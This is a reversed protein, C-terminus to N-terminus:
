RQLLNGEVYVVGKPSLVIADTERDFELLRQTHLPGIVKSKFVALNSYEIWECVDEVLVSSEASSYLLLLAQDKAPLGENLVRKKGAIEWIGPLQRVTLGDVIDQAEELSLGHNTRILECVIWDATKAMAAIDIGNADVDGGVHGIGRKNRMTYLFVLARPLVIRESENGKTAPATILKRCEEAYNNIQTGFPTYAGHIKNQLFRLVVECLKGVAIGSADHRLELVNKKLDMYARILRTRFVKPINVLASDLVPNPNATSM